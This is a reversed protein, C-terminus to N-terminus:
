FGIMELGPGALALDPAGASPIRLVFSVVEPGLSAPALDPAGAILIRLLFSVMELGPGALALDPAGAIPNKILFRGNAVTSWWICGLRAMCAVHVRVYGACFNCWVAALLWSELSDRICM